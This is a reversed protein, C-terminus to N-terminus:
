FYTFFPFLFGFLAYSVFHTYGIALFFTSHLVGMASIVYVETVEFVSWFDNFFFFQLLEFLYNSRLCRSIAHKILIERSKAGSSHFVYM